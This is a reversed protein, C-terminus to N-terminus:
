RQLLSAVQSRFRHWLEGLSPRRAMARARRAVMDPTVAGTGYHCDCLLHHAQHPTLDFFREAEGLQDSALGEARFGVNEYAIM